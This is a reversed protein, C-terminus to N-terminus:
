VLGRERELKAVMAPSRENILAEMRLRARDANGRHMFYTEGNLVALEMEACMVKGAIRIALERGMDLLEDPSLADIYGVSCVECNPGTLTLTPSEAPEACLFSIPLTAATM